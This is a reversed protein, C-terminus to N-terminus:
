YPITKYPNLILKPDFMHKFRQMYEVLDKSKSYYIYNRKKLGLGHEASISGHNQRTWEFIWPEILGLMKEDYKESTLNLHLNGDGMHGYAVCSKLAKAEVLRKRLATALEYMRAIPLSIDYKYNFGEKTLALAISERLSWILDFQQRSEAIIADRCLNAAMVASFFSEIKQLDHESCSGHTEALCYFQTEKAIDKNVGRFPNELNLNANVANMADKDMFEFASLIENLEQKALRFVDIVNQFSNSNCAIFILNAAKPKLPCLISVGSIIGLTGESRLMKSRGITIVNFIFFSM